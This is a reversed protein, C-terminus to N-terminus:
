AIVPFSHIRMVEQGAKGNVVDSTRILDFPERGIILFMARRRKFKGGNGMSYQDALPYWTVIPADGDLHFDDEHLAVSNDEPKLIESVPAYAVHYGEPIDLREVKTPDISALESDGLRVEQVSHIAIRM